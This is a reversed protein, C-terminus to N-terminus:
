RRGTLAFSRMRGSWIEAGRDASWGRPTPARGVRVFVFGDGEDLVGPTRTRTPCVGAHM